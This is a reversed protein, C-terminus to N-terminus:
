VIIEEIAPEGAPEIGTLFDALAADDDERPAHAPHGESPELWLAAAERINARAEELTEGESFCGPLAPVAASYGGEQEPVFVAKLTRRVTAPNPM